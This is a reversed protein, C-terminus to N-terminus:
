HYPSWRSRCWSTCEKGVRREESRAILPYVGGPSYSGVAEVPVHKHGLTVGPLTEVELNLMTQRQLEAFAQVQIRAREIHEALEEDVSEYAREIEERGVTFREPQWSDLVASYRRVATEGERQVASLIESVTDKIERTVADAQEDGRKIYEAM